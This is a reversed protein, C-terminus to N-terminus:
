CPIRLLLTLSLVSSVSPTQLGMPYCCYWGVLGGWLEWTNFWWDFLVWTPIWPDLWTHLLSHDQRADIPPSTTPGTFARQGLTPSHWPLSSHTPPLHFMRMSAPSAIRSLPFGSHFSSFTIVNSIYISLYGMFNKKRFKDNFDIM